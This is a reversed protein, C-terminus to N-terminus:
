NRGDECKATTMTLIRWSLFLIALQNRRFLCGYSCAIIKRIGHKGRITPVELHTRDQRNLLVIAKFAISIEVIRHHGHSIM